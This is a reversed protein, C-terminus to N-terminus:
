YFFNSLQELADSIKEIKDPLNSVTAIAKDGIEEAKSVKGLFNKIDGWLSISKLEAPDEQEEAVLDRLEEKLERAENGLESKRDIQRALTTFLTTLDALSEGLEVKVNATAQAHSNATATTHIHNHIHNHIIPQQLIPGLFNRLGEYSITNVASNKFELLEKQSQIRLEAIRLENKLEILLLRDGLAYEEPSMEGTVVLGFNALEKEITEYKGDSTEIIMRVTLDEQQISVKPQQEPYKERLVKAFYNLIGMGAEHYESPFEIAKNLGLNSSFEESLEAILQKIKIITFNHVESAAHVLDDDKSFNAVVSSKSVAYKNKDRELFAKFRSRFESYPFTNTWSSLIGQVSIRILKEPTRIKIDLSVAFEKEFTSDLITIWHINSALDALTLKDFYNSLSTKFTVNYKTKNNKRQRALASTMDMVTDNITINCKRSEKNIHHISLM